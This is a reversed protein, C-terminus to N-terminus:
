EFWVENDQARLLMSPRQRLVDMGLVVAPPSAIGLGNLAALGPLEGVYLAVSGFDVATTSTSSPIEVKAAEKTKVLNVTKGNTGMIMLIEGRSAAQAEKVRNAVESLPNRQTMKEVPLVTEIGALKAAQANLVTIPSGTDLLAPMEVGNISIIVSPLQTVPIRHIPVKSRGKLILSDISKDGYFTVSPPEKNPLGWSFEVGGQFVQLFALSLLGASAPSAVPLVSATLDTMFIFPEEGEASLLPLGELQADGLMYTDGGRVIPGASGVGPLAQGVVRLDLENAVVQQLTNTNAATDLLFDLSVGTVNKERQNATALAPFRLSLCPYPGIYKLPARVAQSPGETSMTTADATSVSTGLKNSHTMIGWAAGSPLYQNTFGSAIPLANALLLFASLSFNMAYVM